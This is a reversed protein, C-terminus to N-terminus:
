CYESIEMGKSPRELIKTKMSSVMESNSYDEIAKIESRIKQTSNKMNAYINM